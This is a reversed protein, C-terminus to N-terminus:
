AGEDLTGLADEIAEPSFGRRALVRWAARRDPTRAAVDKARSREPPLAALASGVLESSLGEQELRAGIAADGWGRGSLSAARAHALRADDVAGASALAAVVSEATDAPVGRSALRERLRRQSVDRRALARVAAGLAEARLLERRIERLRSRDLAVDPALGCRVLV